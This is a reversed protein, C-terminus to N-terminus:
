RYIGISIMENTKQEVDVNTPKMSVILNLFDEANVAITDDAVRRASINHIKCVNIFVDTVVKFHQRSVGFTSAYLYISKDSFLKERIHNMALKFYGQMKRSDFVDLEEKSWDVAIEKLMDSFVGQCVLINSDESTKAPLTLTTKKSFLSFLWKFFKM